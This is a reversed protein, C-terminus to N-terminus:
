SNESGVNRFLESEAGSEADQAETSHKNGGVSRWRVEKRIRLVQQIFANDGREETIRKESQGAWRFIQEISGYGRGFARALLVTNEQTPAHALIVRLQDDTWPKGKNPEPLSQSRLFDMLEVRVAAIKEEPTMGAARQNLLARVADRFARESM